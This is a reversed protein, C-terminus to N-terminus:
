IDHGPLGGLVPNPLVDHYGHAHPKQQILIMGNQRIVLMEGEYTQNLISETFVDEPKGQAIIQQNLCIIWPSHAAAMNLDHTTM